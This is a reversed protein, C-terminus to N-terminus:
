FKSDRALASGPYKTRHNYSAYHTSTVQRFFEKNHFINQTMEPNNLLARSMQDKLIQIEHDKEQLNGSLINM